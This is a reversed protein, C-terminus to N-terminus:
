TLDVATTRDVDDGHTEEREKDNRTAKRLINLGDQDASEETGEEAGGHYGVSRASDAVHDRWLVDSQGVTKPADPGDITGHNSGYNAAEDELIKAPSPIIPQDQDHAKTGKDSQDECFLRVPGSYKALTGSILALLSAIILPPTLM